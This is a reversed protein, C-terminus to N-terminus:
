ANWMPAEFPLKGGRLRRQLRELDQTGALTEFVREPTGWDSWDCPPATAVALQRGAKALVAASFDARPLEQYLEQLKAQEAGTGLHRGIRSFAEAHNPLREETLTWLAEATGTVVLSNWLAKNRLLEAAVTPPPKEVFRVVSHLVPARTTLQRGPLIWGYDTEPWDPEIGLLVVGHDPGPATLEALTEEFLAPRGVHHDSPLVLVRAGADRARIYSLPLLLGAATGLNAPQELVTVAGLAASQARALHAHSKTAVVVIQEWPAVARARLLTTQLLSLEGRLVAFQKPLPAGHLATTLPLLRTGDGGALVIVSLSGRLATAPVRPAAPEIVRVPNMIENHTTFM